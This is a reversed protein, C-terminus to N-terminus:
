TGFRANYLFYSRQRLFTHAIMKQTKDAFYLGTTMDGDVIDRDRGMALRCTMEM